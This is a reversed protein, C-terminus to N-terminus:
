TTAATIPTPSYVDGDDENLSAPAGVIREDPRQFYWQYRERETPVELAVVRAGSEKAWYQLKLLEIQLM